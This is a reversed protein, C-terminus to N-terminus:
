SDDNAISLTLFLNMSVRLLHIYITARRMLGEKRSQSYLYVLCGGVTRLQLGYPLILRSASVHVTSPGFEGRNEM